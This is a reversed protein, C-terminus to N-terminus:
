QKHEKPSFVIGNPKKVIVDDIAGLQEPISDPKTPIYHTATANMQKAASDAGLRFAQFYPNTQNKTFIAVKEGDAFAQGSTLTLLAATTLLLRQHKM